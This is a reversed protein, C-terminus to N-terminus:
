RRPQCFVEFNSDWGSGDDTYEVFKESRPPDISSFNTLDTRSEVLPWYPPPIALAAMASWDWGAFWAHKKVNDIGGPLCALRKEPCTKLLGIILDGIPGECSSPFLVGELGRKVNEYVLNPREAAFPPKKTMLEFILVGLAWWDVAHTHGDNTIVEPALYDPTGEM